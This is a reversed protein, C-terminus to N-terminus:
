AAAGSDAEADTALDDISIDVRSAEVGAQAILARAVRERVDLAVRRVPPGFRVVLRLDVAVSGPADPDEGAHRITALVVDPASLASARALRGLTRDAIRTQGERALLVVGDGSSRTIARVRLMIQEALGEPVAIATRAARQFEEWAQRIAELAAQCHRCTAQHARDLPSAEDTIQAILDDLLTGCPLALASAHDDLAM